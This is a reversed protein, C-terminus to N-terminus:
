SKKKLGENLIEIQEIFLKQYQVYILDVANGQMQKLKELLAGKQQENEFVDNNIKTIAYVLTPRKLAEIFQMQNQIAEDPVLANSKEKEEQTLTHMTIKWGKIPEVEKELIGFKVLKDVNVDEEKPANQTNQFTQKTIEKM